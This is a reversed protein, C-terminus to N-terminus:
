ARGLMLAMSRSKPVETRNGVFIADRSIVGTMTM